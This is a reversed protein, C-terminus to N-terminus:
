ITDLKSILKLPLRCYISITGLHFLDACGMFSVASVNIDDYDEHSQDEPLVPPSFFNFFTEAKMM